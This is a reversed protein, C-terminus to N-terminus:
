KRKAGQRWPMRLETSNRSASQVHLSPPAGDIYPSHTPGAFWSCRVKNKSERSKRGKRVDLFQKEGGKSTYDVSILENSMKSNVIKKQTSTYVHKQEAIQNTGGSCSVPLRCSKRCICGPERRREKILSLRMGLSDRMLSLLLSLRPILSAPSVLYSSSANELHVVWHKLENLSVNCLTHM